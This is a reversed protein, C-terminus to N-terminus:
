HDSLSLTKDKSGLVMIQINEDMDDLRVPIKPSPLIKSKLIHPSIPMSDENSM